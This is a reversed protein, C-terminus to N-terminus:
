PGAEPSAEVNKVPPWPEATPLEAARLDLGESADVMPDPVSIGHEPDPQNEEHNRKALRPRGVLRDNRPDLVGVGDCVPEVYTASHLVWTPEGESDLMAMRKRPARHVRYVLGDIDVNGCWTGSFGKGGADTPTAAIGEHGALIRWSILSRARWDEGQDIAPAAFVLTTPDPARPTSM